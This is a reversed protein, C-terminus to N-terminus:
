LKLTEYLHWNAKYWAASDDTYDYEEIYKFSVELKGLDINLSEKNWVYDMEKCWNDIAYEITDQNVVLVFGNHEEDYQNLISEKYGDTSILYEKM